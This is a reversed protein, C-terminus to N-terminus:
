NDYPGNEATTIERSEWVLIQFELFHDVPEKM